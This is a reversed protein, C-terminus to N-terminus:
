CVVKVNIKKKKQQPQYDVILKIEIYKLKYNYLEFM